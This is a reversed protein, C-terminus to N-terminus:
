EDSARLARGLDAETIGRPTASYSRRFRAPYEESNNCLDAARM